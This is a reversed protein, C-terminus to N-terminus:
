ASFVSLVGIAIVILSLWRRERYSLQIASVFIAMPPLLSLFSIWTADPAVSIPMWPAHDGVLSFVSM